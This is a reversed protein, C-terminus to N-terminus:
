KNLFSFSHKVFNVEAFYIGSARRRCIIGAALIIVHGLKGSHNGELLLLKSARDGITELGKATLHVLLLGLYYGSDHVLDAKLSLVCLVGVNNDVVGTGDTLVGIQLYVSTKALKVAQLFGVRIHLDGKEAAHHLLFLHHVLDLLVIWKDIQYESGVINELEGLQEILHLVTVALQDVDPFAGVLNHFLKRCFAIVREFGADVNHEAAVIEATVTDYRVYSAPLSATLRLGNHFFDLCQHCIAHSLDHKKSLVYVGVALSQLIRDSKGLKKLLNLCDFAQLSDAEHGGM